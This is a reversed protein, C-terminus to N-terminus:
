AGSDARLAFITQPIGSGEAGAFHRRTLWAIAAFGRPATLWPWWESANVLRRRRLQAIDALKAFAVAAVGVSAASGWLLVRSKWHPVSLLQNLEM